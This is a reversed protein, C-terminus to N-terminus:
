EEVRQREKAFREKLSRFWDVDIRAMHLPLVPPNRNSGSLGPPSAPHRLPALLM